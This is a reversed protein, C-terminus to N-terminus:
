KRKKYLNLLFRQEEPTFSSYFVQKIYQKEEATIGDALTDKLKTITDPHIKSMVIAYAKAKEEMTIGPIDSDKSSSDNGWQDQISGESGGSQNRAGTGTGGSGDTPTGAPSGTPVGQNAGTSSADGLSITSPDPLQAELASLDMESLEKSIRYDAYAFLSSLLLALTAVSILITKGWSRKKGDKQKIDKEKIIPKLAVRGHRKVITNGTTFAMQNSQTLIDYQEASLTKRLEKIALAVDLGPHHMDSGLFHYHDSKLFMRATDQATEGYMGTLSALNVQAYAGRDLLRTLLQPEASIQRNREPHAIVPKYGAAVLEDVVHFVEEPLDRMPLEILVYPTEGLPLAQGTKLRHLIENHFLIECGLSVKLPIGAEKLKEELEDRKCEMELIPLAGSGDICHPTAIVHTFGLTHLKRAMAIADDMTKAGDDGKISPLIHCHLDIM